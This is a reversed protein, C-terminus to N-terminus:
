KEHPHRAPAAFFDTLEAALEPHGALLEDRGPVRGAAAAAPYGNLAEELTLGDAGPWFFAQPERLLDLLLHRLDETRASAEPVHATM